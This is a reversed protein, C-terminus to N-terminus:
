RCRRRSAVVRKWCCVADDSIVIHPNTCSALHKELMDAKYHVNVIARPIGADRVRDLVRDILARGKLPVLPKPQTDTLHRMRKGLGAALVMATDPTWTM